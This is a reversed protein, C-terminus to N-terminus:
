LLLLVLAGLARRSLSPMVTPRNSPKDASPRGRATEADRPLRFFRLGFFQRVARGRARGAGEFSSPLQGPRLVSRLPNPATHRIVLSPAAVPQRRPRRDLPTTGGM